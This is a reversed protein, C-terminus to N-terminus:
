IKKDKKDTLEYDKILKKFGNKSFGISFSLTIHQKNLKLKEYEKDGYNRRLAELPTQITPVADTATLLPNGLSFSSSDRQWGKLIKPVKQGIFREIDQWNNPIFTFYISCKNGTIECENFNASVARGRTSHTIVQKSLELTEWNKYIKRSKTDPYCYLSLGDPNILEVCDNDSWEQGILKGWKNLKEPAPMDQVKNELYLSVFNQIIQERQAELEKRWWDLVADSGGFSKYEEFMKQKIHDALQVRAQRYAEMEMRKQTGVFEVNYSPQTQGKCIGGANIECDTKKGYAPECELNECQKPLMRMCSDSVLLESTNLEFGDGYLDVLLQSYSNKNQEAFTGKEFYPKDKNNAYNFQKGYDGSVVDEQTFSVLFEKNIKAIASTSVPILSKDTVCELARTLNAPLFSDIYIIPGDISKEAYKHSLMLMALVIPFYTNAGLSFFDLKGEDIKHVSSYGKYDHNEFSFMENYPFIDYVKAEAWRGNRSRLHQGPFAEDPRENLSFFTGNSKIFYGFYGDSLDGMRIYCLYMGDEAAELALVCQALTPFVSIITSFNKIKGVSGGIKYVDLKLKSISGVVRDISELIAKRESDQNRVGILESKSINRILADLADLYANELMVVEDSQFVNWATQYERWSEHDSVIEFMNIRNSKLAKEFVSKAYMVALSGTSDYENILTEIKKNAEHLTYEASLLNFRTQEPNYESFAFWQNLINFINM